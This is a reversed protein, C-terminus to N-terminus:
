WWVPGWRVPIISFKLIQWALTNLNCEPQGDFDNFEERQSGNPLVLSHM